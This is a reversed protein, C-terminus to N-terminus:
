AAAAVSAAAFRVLRRRHGVLDATFIVLAVWVLSFGLLEATGVSEGLLTVGLVFQITPALYQLVGLTTLPVRQAAGGFLLLPVATIVGSLALLVAHGPGASGFTSGGQVGLLILYGAALPALVATEIALGEVPAVGATKKLLGYVAFTFALTLAIYPPGGNDVTLIVVAVAALSMAMWQLPRLREKLVLVGLMVTVLPNIFYGLSTEVVQGSSVGYIFVGWNIGIVVAAAALRLVQMPQRLAKRLGATRRTLALLVGVALLSWAVRHALVELAPSPALFPWYLPFLGWMLYATAGYVTGRRTESM